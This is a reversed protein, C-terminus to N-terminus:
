ISRKIVGQINQSRKTFSLRKIIPASHQASGLQCNKPCSSFRPQIKKVFSLYRKIIKSLNVGKLSNDDIEKCNSEDFELKGKLFNM